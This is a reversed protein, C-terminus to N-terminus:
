IVGRTYQGLITVSWYNEVNSRICSIFGADDLMIDDVDFICNWADCNSVTVDAALPSTATIRDGNYVITWERSGLPCYSWYFRTSVRSSCSLSFNSGATVVLSQHRGDMNQQITSPLQTTTLAASLDNRTTRPATTTGPQRSVSTAYQSILSTTTEETTM